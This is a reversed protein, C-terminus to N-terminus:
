WRREEFEKNKKNKEKNERNNTKKKECARKCQAGVSYDREKGERSSSVGGEQSSIFTSEDHNGGEREKQRSPIIRDSLELSRRTSDDDGGECLVRESSCNESIVRTVGVQHTLGSGLSILDREM